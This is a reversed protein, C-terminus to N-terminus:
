HRHRMASVGDSLCKVFKDLFNVFGGLIFKQYDCTGDYLLKMTVIYYDDNSQVTAQAKFMHCDDHTIGTCYVNEFLMISLKQLM